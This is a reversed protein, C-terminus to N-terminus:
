DVEKKKRLGFFILLAGVALTLVHGWIYGKGYDSLIQYDAVYQGIRILSAIVVIIGLVLLLKKM